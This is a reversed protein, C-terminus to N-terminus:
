KRAGGGDATAAQQSGSKNKASRLEQFFRPLYDMDQQLLVRERFEEGLQPEKRAKLSLVERYQRYYYSDRDPDRFCCVIGIKPRACYLLGWHRTLHVREYKHPCPAGLDRAIWSLLQGHVFQKSSSLPIGYVRYQVIYAHTDCHECREFFVSRDVAVFWLLVLAGAALLIPVLLHRRRRRFWGAAVLALAAVLTGAAEIAGASRAVWTVVGVALALCATLALLARLSYQM